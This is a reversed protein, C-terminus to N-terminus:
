SDEDSLDNDAANDILHAINNQYYDNWVNLGKALGSFNVSKKVSNLPDIIAAFSKTINERIEQLPKLVDLLPEFINKMSERFYANSKDVFDKEETLKIAVKVANNLVRFYEKCKNYTNSYFFKNHAIVNRFGQIETVIEQINPIDIKEKFFRDWDSKPTHQEFANRLEEDSLENLKKNEALFKQKNEEDIDVWKPTFLINQIDGFELSYFFTQLRDIAEVQDRNKLNYKNKIENRKESSCNSNIRKKIDSQIDGNITTNFYDVGFNVIYVNFLLKRLNRELENLRPFIKNCYYESIADYSVIEIYKNTIGSALIKDQVIELYRVCKAKTPGEVVVDLYWVHVVDNLTFDVKFSTGDDTNVMCEFTRRLFDEKNSTVTVNNFAKCIYSYVGGGLKIVTTGDPKVETSDDKIYPNKLFIYSNQLLM